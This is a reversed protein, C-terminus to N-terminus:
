RLGQLLCSRSKHPLDTSVPRSAPQRTNNLGVLIPRSSSLRIIAHWTPGASRRSRGTCQARRIRTNARACRDYARKQVVSLSAQESLRSQMKPHGGRGPQRRRQLRVRLSQVVCRDASMIADSPAPERDTSTFSPCGEKKAEDKAAVAANSITFAVVGLIMRNLM